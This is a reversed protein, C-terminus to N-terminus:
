IPADLALETARELGMARGDATAADFRVAGLADVLRTRTEEPTSQHATPGRHAGLGDLTADAAALLRASTELERDSLLGAIEAVIWACMVHRRDRWALGLAARSWGLAADADGLAGDLHGLNGLNMTEQFRDGLRRNVELAELYRARATETDDAFRSLVGAVNLAHALVSLEGLRGAQAIVDDLRDLADRHEDPRRLSTASLNARAIQLYRWDDARESHEIARRYHDTAADVDRDSFAMFGAGLRIRGATRDDLSASHELARSFRRRGEAHRGTRYWWVNLDGVIQCATTPDDAQQRDLVADIDARLAAVDDLWTAARENWRTAEIAAVAAAIRSAHAARASTAAGRAELRDHGFARILNLMSFRPEGSGLERRVLSRDVLPTLAHLADLDSAFDGVAAADSLSWGSEFVALRELLDQQPETLLRHSWEILADVSNQRAPRDALEHSIATPGGALLTDLYDLPVYRLQAAALGIALPLGDLRACVAGVMAQNDATLEFTPEAKSAEHAFLALAPGPRAGVRLALPAIEVPHEATLRLPMRSTVLCRLHPLRELLDAVIPAAAIVHEFNDLVLLVPRGRLGEVIASAPDVEVDGQVGVADSIRAPVLDADTTTDLTVFVVQQDSDESTRVVEEALRTKGVGGPGVLTVLRRGSDLLSAILEIEVDRGIM